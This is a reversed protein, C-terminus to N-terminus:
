EFDGEMVPWQIELGTIYVRHCVAAFERNGINMAGSLTGVKPRTDVHFGPLLMQIRVFAPQTVLSM